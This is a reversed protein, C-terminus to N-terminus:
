EHLLAPDHCWSTSITPINQPQAQTAQFQIYPVLNAELFPRFPEFQSPLERLFEPLAMTDQEQNITPSKKPQSTPTAIATM